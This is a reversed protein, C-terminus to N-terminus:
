VMSLNLLWLTYQFVNLSIFDPVFLGYMFFLLSKFTRVEDKKVPEADFDEEYDCESVSDDDVGSLLKLDDQM